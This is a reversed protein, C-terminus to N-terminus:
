LYKVSHMGRGADLGKDFATVQYGQIVRFTFRFVVWLQEIMM